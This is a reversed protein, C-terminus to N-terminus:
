KCKIIPMSEINKLANEKYKSILQNYFESSRSVQNLAYYLKVNLKEDEFVDRLEIFEDTNENLKSYETTITKTATNLIHNVSAESELELNVGVKIM